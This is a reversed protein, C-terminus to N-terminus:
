RQTKNNGQFYIEDIHFKSFKFHNYSLTGEVHHLAFNNESFESSDEFPTSPAQKVM